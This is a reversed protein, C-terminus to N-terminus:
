VVNLHTLRRNPCEIQGKDKPDQNAQNICFKISFSLQATVRARLKTPTYLWHFTAWGGISFGSALDSHLSEWSWMSAQRSYHVSYLTCVGITLHKTCGRGITTICGFQLKDILNSKLTKNNESLAALLGVPGLFAKKISITCWPNRCNVEVPEIKFLLRFFVVVSILSCYISAVSSFPKFYLSGSITSAKFM